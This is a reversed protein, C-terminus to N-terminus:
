GLLAIVESIDEVEELNLVMSIVKEQNEIPIPNVAYRMCDKFKAVLDEVSIPKLPNGYIIEVTESYVKGNIDTIDVRAPPMVDRKDFKDDFRYDVKAALKLTESDKMGELTLHEIIPSGRVITSAVIFPLSFKAESVARPARRVEIPQCLPQSLDGVYLMINAIDEAKINHKKIQALTADIYSHSVRCSPWPKFCVQLGEFRKGLEGILLERNYTGDFYVNFLGARGEFPQRVGTIGKQAMLAAMVAQHEVFSAYLGRITAGPGFSAQLTGATQTFAIGLADKMQEKSLKLLKGCATAGSFRGFVSSPSWDRGYGEPHKVLSTGLRIALDNGLAIATIFEKGSVKGVREAIALAAPVTTITAHMFGTDLADDYDIGHALAGNAFAAKDCPVKIGFGIISSEPKGGGEAALEVVEKCCQGATGAAITTGLVDLISKKTVEVVDLPLDEFKVDVANDAIITALDRNEM